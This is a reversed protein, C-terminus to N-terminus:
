SGIFGHSEKIKDFRLIFIIGNKNIPIYVYNDTHELYLIENSKGSFISDFYNLEKKDSKYYQSNFNIDEDAIKNDKDIFVYTIENNIKIQRILTISPYDYKQSDLFKILEPINKITSDKSLNISISNITEDYRKVIDKAESILRNKEINKTLFNGAFLLLTLFIFISGIVIIIKKRQKVSIKQEEPYKSDAILSINISINFIALLINLIIVVFIFIYFFTATKEAFVRLNFTELTTYIFYWFVSLIISILMIWISLNSLRKKFEVKM